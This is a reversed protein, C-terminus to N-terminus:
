LWAYCGDECLCYCTGMRYRGKRLQVNGKSRLLLKVEGQIKSLIHTVQKVSMKRVSADNIGIIEYYQNTSESGRTEVSNTSSSNSIKNLNPLQKEFVGTSILLLVDSNAQARLNIGLDEDQATKVYVCEHLMAELSDNSIVCSPIGLEREQERKSKNSPQSEM